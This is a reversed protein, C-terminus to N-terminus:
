TRKKELGAVLLESVYAPINKQEMAAGTKVQMFLSVSIKVNLHKLPPKLSESIRKPAELGLARGRERNCGNCVPEVELPRNYDRHDYVAAPKGCDLCSVAGDLKAITGRKIERCVRQTARWQLQWDKREADTMADVKLHPM